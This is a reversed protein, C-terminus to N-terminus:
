RKQRESTFTVTIISVTIKFALTLIYERWVCFFRHKAFMVM